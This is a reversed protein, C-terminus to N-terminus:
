VSVRTPTSRDDSAAQSTKPNVSRNADIVVTSALHDHFARGYPDFAAWLLGVSYLDAIRALFRGFGHAYGLPQGDHARVVRLGLLRKGLTQGRKRGECIPLYAVAISGFLLALAVGAIRSGAPAAVSSAYPYEAVTPPFGYARCCVTVNKSATLVSAFGIALAVLIGIVALDILWAGVRSGFTPFPALEDLLPYRVRPARGPLPPLARTIGQSEHPEPKRERSVASEAAQGCEPCFRASPPLHQGCASCYNM